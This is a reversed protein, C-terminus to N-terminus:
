SFKSEELTLTGAHIVLGETPHKILEVNFYLAALITSANGSRFDDRPANEDYQTISTRGPEVYFKITSHQRGLRPSFLLGNGPHPERSWIIGRPRRSSDVSM